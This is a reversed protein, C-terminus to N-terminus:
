NFEIVEFVQRVLDDITENKYERNVHLTVAPCYGGIIVYIKILYVNRDYDFILQKLRNSDETELLLKRNTM